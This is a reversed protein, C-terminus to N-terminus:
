SFPVFGTDDRDRGARLWRPDLDVYYVQDAAFDPNTKVGRSVACDM